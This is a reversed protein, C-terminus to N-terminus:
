IRKYLQTTYKAEQLRCGRATVVSWLRVVFINASSLRLRHAHRKRHTQTHGDTDRTFAQARHFVGEWHQRFPCATSHCVMNGATTHSLCVSCPCRASWRSTTAWTVDLSGWYGGQQDSLSRFMQATLRQSTDNQRLRPRCRQKTFWNDHIQHLLFLFSSMGQQFPLLCNCHMSSVCSLLHTWQTLSCM